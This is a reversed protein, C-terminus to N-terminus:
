PTKSCPLQSERVPLLPCYRGRWLRKSESVRFPLETVPINIGGINFEDHEHPERVDIMVPSKGSGILQHLDNVTIDDM